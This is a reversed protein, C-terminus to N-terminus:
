MTNFIHICIYELDWMLNFKYLVRSIPLNADM